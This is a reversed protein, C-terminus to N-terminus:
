VINSKVKELCHPHVFVELLCNVWESFSPKQGEQSCPYDTHQNPPVVWSHKSCRTLVIRIMSFPLTMLVSGHVSVERGEKNRTWAELCTLLMFGYDTRLECM